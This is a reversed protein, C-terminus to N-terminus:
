SLPAKIPGWWETDDWCSDTLWWDNAFWNGRRDVCVEIITDPEGESDHRIWYYGPETPRERSWEM